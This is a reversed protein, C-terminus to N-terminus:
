QAFIDRLNVLLNNESYINKILQINKIGCHPANLADPLEFTNYVVLGEDRLLSWTTVDNRIFVMKGMGLLSVINGFAQQRDHNFIGIDVDSLFQTYNDLSMLEKLAVFREGFLSFGHMAVKRAYSSDGYSLPCIIMIERDQYNKLKDLVEIHNNSPDASNGLLIIIRLDSRQKVSVSRYLNSPYMFCKIWRGKAGYWEQAFEYDGKNKAIFNGIKGIVFRRILELIRWRLTKNKTNHAYLDGGWIAWYCKALSRFNFVLLVLLHPSFLGHLIVKRAKGVQASIQFVSALLSRCYLVNPARPCQGAVANGYIIFLHENEPFEKSVLRIFDPVFKVDWNVLHVIKRM